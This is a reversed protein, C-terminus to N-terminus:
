PCDSRVKADQWWMRYRGQQPIVDTTSETTKRAIFWLTYVGSDLKGDFYDMHPLEYPNYPAPGWPIWPTSIQKNDYRLMVSDVVEFRNAAYYDWALCPSFQYYGHELHNNAPLIHMVHGGVKLMSTINKLVNPVHFIHEMTGHNFVVDFRSHLEPPLESSNLDFIFDAAEYDSADLSSSKSYGIARFFTQDDPLPMDDPLDPSLHLPETKGLDRATKRLYGVDVDVNPYVRGLSCIHGGFGHRHSFFMIVRALKRILPM